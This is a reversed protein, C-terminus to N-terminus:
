SSGNPDRPIFGGIYNVEDRLAERFSQPSRVFTDNITAAPSTPTVNSASRARRLRDAEVIRENPSRSRVMRVIGKEQLFRDPLLRELRSPYQGNLEILASGIQVRLTQGNAPHFFTNPLKVLTGFKSNLDTLKVGNDSLHIAAHLRSVSIDALVIDNEKSRGLRIPKGKVIPVIHIKSTPQSINTGAVSSQQVSFDELIIHPVQPRPILISEYVSKSYISKCIECAITRIVYSGGGNDFQKVQLQGHLWRRLCEVHIYRLSGACSCPSLLLNGNDDSPEFCIRCVPGSTSPAESLSGTHESQLDQQDDLHPFPKLTTSGIARDRLAEETVVVDVLTVKYSGFRMIDAPALSRGEPEKNVEEWIEGTGSETRYPSCDFVFGNGSVDLRGILEKGDDTEFESRSLFIKSDDRYLFYSGHAGRIKFERMYLLPSMIHLLGRGEIPWSIAKVNLNFLKESRSAVSEEKLINPQHASGAASDGDDTVPVSPSRLM